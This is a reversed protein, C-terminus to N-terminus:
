LKDFPSQWLARVAVIGEEHSLGVDSLSLLPPSLLLYDYFLVLFM